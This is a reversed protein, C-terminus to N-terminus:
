YIKWAAVWILSDVRDNMGLSTPTKTASTTAPGHHQRDHAVLMRSIKPADGTHDALRM